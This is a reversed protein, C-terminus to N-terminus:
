FFFVNVMSMGDLMFVRNTAHSHGKKCYPSLFVFLTDAPRYTRGASQNANAVKQRQCATGFHANLRGYADCTHGVPKFRKNAPQQVGFGRYIWWAVPGTTIAIRLSKHVSTLKILRIPTKLM